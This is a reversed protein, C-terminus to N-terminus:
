CSQIERDKQSLYEQISSYFGPTKQKADCWSLFDNWSAMAEQMSKKM